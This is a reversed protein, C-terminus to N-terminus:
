YFFSGMQALPIQPKQESELYQATRRVVNGKDEAKRLATLEGEQTQKRSSKQRIFCFARGTTHKSTGDVNMVM